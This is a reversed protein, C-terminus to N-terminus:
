KWLLAAQLETADAVRASATKLLNIAAMLTMTHKSSDKRIAILIHSHDDNRSM